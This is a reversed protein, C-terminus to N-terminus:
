YELQVGTKAAIQNIRSESRDVKHGMMLMEQNNDTILKALGDVTNILNNLETKTATDELKNDIKDFRKEVYKFLKTFEDQSM